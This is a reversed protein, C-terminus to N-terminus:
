LLGGISRPLMASLVPNPPAYSGLGLPSHCIGAPNLQAAGNVHNEVSLLLLGLSGM